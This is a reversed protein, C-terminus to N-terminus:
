NNGGILGCYSPINSLADCNGTNPAPPTQRRPQQPQPRVPAPPAPQSDAFPDVRGGISYSQGPDTNDFSWVKVMHTGNEIAKFRLKTSRVNGRGDHFPRQIHRQTSHLQRGSPTVITMGPTFSYSLVDYEYSVGAKFRAPHQQGLYGTSLNQASAPLIGLGLLLVPLVVLLNRIHFRFPSM